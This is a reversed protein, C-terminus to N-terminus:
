CKSQQEKKCLVFDKNNTAHSKVCIGTVHKHFKVHRSVFPFLKGTHWCWAVGCGHEENTVLQINYALTNCGHLSLQLAIKGCPYHTQRTSTAEKYGANTKHKQISKEPRTKKTTRTIKHM